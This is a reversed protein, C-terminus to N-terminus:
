NRARRVLMKEKQACRRSGAAGEVVHVRNVTGKRRKKGEGTGRRRRGTKNGRWDQTSVTERDPGELSCCNKTGLNSRFGM